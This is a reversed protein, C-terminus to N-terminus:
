FSANCEARMDLDKIMGCISRNRQVQAMCLNRMDLDGIMGCVSSNKTAKGVCMNRRDQNQIQMCSHSNQAHATEVGFNPFSAAPGLLGLAISALAGAYVRRLTRHM